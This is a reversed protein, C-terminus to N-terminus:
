ASADLAKVKMYPDMRVRKFILGRGIRKSPIAKFYGPSFTTKYHIGKYNKGALLNRLQSRYHALEERDDKLRADMQYIIAQLLELSLNPSAEGGSALATTVANRVDVELVPLRQGLDDTNLAAPIKHAPDEAVAPMPAGEHQGASTKVAIM